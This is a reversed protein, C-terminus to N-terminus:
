PDPAGLPLPFRPMVGGSDGIIDEWRHRVHDPAANRDLLAQTHEVFAPAPGPLLERGTRGADLASLLDRAIVLMSWMDVHAHDAAIVVTLGAATELVCLRHSPQQYPSCAADLIDRVADNVAQGPSVQHEVWTGPGHLEPDGDAGPVFATRLTGHRAVVALWADAISERRTPTPLRFSLAMWSGPDGLVILPLAEGVVEESQEIVPEGAFTDM